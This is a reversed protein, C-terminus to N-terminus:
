YASGTRNGYRRKKEKNEKYNPAWLYRAALNIFQLKGTDQAFVFGDKQVGHVYSEVYGSPRYEGILHVFEPEGGNRMDTEIALAWSTLTDEDKEDILRTKKGPPLTSKDVWPPIRGEHRLIMEAGFYFSEGIAVHLPNPEISGRGKRKITRIELGMKLCNNLMELDRSYVAINPFSIGEPFRKLVTLDEIYDKLFLSNAKVRLSKLFPFDTILKNMQVFDRNRFAKVFNNTVDIKIQQQKTLKPTPTKKQVTRDTSFTTNQQPDTDRFTFTTKRSTKITNTTKTEAPFPLTDFLSPLDAQSNKRRPASRRRTAPRRNSSHQVTQPNKVQPLVSDFLFGQASRNDNFADPCGYFDISFFLLCFPFFNRLFLIKLIVKRKKM